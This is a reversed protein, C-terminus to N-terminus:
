YFNQHSEYINFERENGWDLIEMTKTEKNNGLFEM